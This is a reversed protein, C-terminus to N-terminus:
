VINVRLIVSNARQCAPPPPTSLWAVAMNVVNSVLYCSCNKYLYLAIDLNSRDYQYNGVVILKTSHISTHTLVVNKCLYRNTYSNVGM